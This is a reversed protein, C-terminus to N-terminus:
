QCPYLPMLTEYLTGDDLEIQRYVRTLYGTGVKRTGRYLGEFRETANGAYGYVRTNLRPTRM